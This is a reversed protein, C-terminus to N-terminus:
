VGAIVYEDFGKMFDAFGNERVCLRNGRPPFHYGRGQRWGTEGIRQTSCEPVCPPCSALPPIRGLSIVNIFNTGRPHKSISLPLPSSLPFSLTPSISPSLCLPIPLFLSLSLGLRRSM